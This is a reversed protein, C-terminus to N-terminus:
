AHDESGEPTVITTNWHHWIRIFGDRLPLTRPVKKYRRHRSRHGSHRQKLASEPEFGDDLWKIKELEDDFPVDQPSNGLKSNSAEATRKRECVTKCRTCGKEATRVGGLTKRLEMAIKKFM